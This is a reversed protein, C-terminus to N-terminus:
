WSLFCLTLVAAFRKCIANFRGLVDSPFSCPTVSGKVRTRFFCSIETM